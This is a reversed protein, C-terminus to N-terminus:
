VKECAMKIAKLHKAIELGKPTLVWKKEHKEDKELVEIFERNRLYWVITYFQLQKMGSKSNTVENKELIHLLLDCTPQSLGEYNSM